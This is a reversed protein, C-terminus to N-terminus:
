DSDDLDNVEDEDASGASAVYEDECALEKAHEIYEDVGKLVKLNPLHDERRQLVETMEDQDHHKYGVIELEELSPPLWEALIKKGSLEVFRLALSIGIRLHTLNPFFPNSKTFDEIEEWKKTSENSDVSNLTETESNEEELDEDAARDEEEKLNEIRSQIENELSGHLQCEVDLDLLQMTLRHLALSKAIEASSWEVIGGDGARGGFRYTFAGWGTSFNIINSVCTGTIECHKLHIERVASAKSPIANM